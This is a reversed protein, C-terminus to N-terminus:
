TKLGEGRTTQKKGGVGVKQGIREGKKRLYKNVDEMQWWGRNVKETAKKDHFILKNAKLDM